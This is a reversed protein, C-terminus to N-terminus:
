GYPGAGLGAHAGVIKVPLNNLAITTKIQEWNRGPSFVAYSTVLPIKGYNAMGSAVTVLVQEAVGVQFYREPFREAFLNVRTSVQLDATLVVMRKNEEGAEVLAEGFGDRLSRLLLKNKSKM